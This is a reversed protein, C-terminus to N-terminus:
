QGDTAQEARHLPSGPLAAPTPTEIIADEVAQEIPNRPYPPPRYDDYSGRPSGGAVTIDVIIPTPLELRELRSRVAATLRQAYDAYEQQEQAALTDSLAAIASHAQEYAIEGATPPRSNAAERQLETLLAIDAPDDGWGAKGTVVLYGQEDVTLWDVDVLRPDDPRFPGPPLDDPLPISEERRALEDEAERYQADTGDDISSLIAEVWLDVVVPETRHQFLDKEDLVTSGLTQRVREAEWSGPRGALVQEISGVNAAAGALAQTVFAAWDIALAARPDPDPEWQGSSTQRAPQNTLRTAETLVTIADHLVEAYPRAQGEDAATLYGTDSLAASLIQRYPKDITRAVAALNARDPLRRVGKTRWQRLNQRTVGVRRAFETEGVGHRARYDEILEVLRPYAM